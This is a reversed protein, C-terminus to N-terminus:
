YTVCRFTRICKIQPKPSRARSDDALNVCCGHFNNHQTDSWYGEANYSDWHTRCAYGPNQLQTVTPIFWDNCPIISNVYTVAESRVYWTRSVETNSPAVIWYNNSACCILFGAEHADGINLSTVTFNYTNILATNTGNSNSFCSADVVVYVSTDYDFVISPNITVSGGFITVSDSTVDITELVTGAASDQRLTINGSNKVVNVNYHIVINGDRAVGTAGDSPTFAIVTPSVDLSTATVIGLNANRVDDIATTGSVKIAM